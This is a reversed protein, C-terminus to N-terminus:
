RVGVPDPESIHFLTKGVGALIKFFLFVLGLVESKDQSSATQLSFPPFGPHGPGATM